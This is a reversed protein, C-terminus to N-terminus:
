RSRISLVLGVCVLLCGVFGVYAITYTGYQGAVGVYTPGLSGAGAYVTGIAGYDGGRSDEPFISMMYATMVPWFGLLGIAFTVVGVFVVSLTGAVTLVVLGVVAFGITVPITRLAGFRDGVWGAVPTAVVGVLFLTAYAMGATRSTLGRETELFIPLFSVSGNWVFSVLSAVVLVLRVRPDFVTRAVTERFGLRVRRLVYESEHLTHVAGALGVLGVVLLLFSLRWPGVLLVVFALGPAAIGAVNYAANNIGFAQGRRRVFLDSLQAFATPVYMGIGFGAVAVGVLFLPYTTAVALLGFGVIWAALCGGIVTKRSLEDALRGGPYRGAAASLTLLTLGFGAQVSSIGLDDIIEPLLPPLVLWGLQSGMAGLAVLILLRGSYGSVLREQGPSEPDSALHSM